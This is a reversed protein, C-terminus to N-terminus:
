GLRSVLEELYEVISSIKSSSKKEPKAYDSLSKDSKKAKEIFELFKDISGQEKYITDLEKVLKDNFLKSFEKKIITYGKDYNDDLFDAIRNLDKKTFKKQYPNFHKSSDTPLLFRGQPDRRRMAALLDADDHTYAYRAFIYKIEDIIEKYKKEAGQLLEEKKDEEIKEPFIKLEKLLKEKKMEPNHEKLKIFTYADKTILDEKREDEIFDFFDKKLKKALIEDIAKDPGAIEELDTGKSDENDDKKDKPQIEKLNSTMEFWKNIGETARNQFSYVLSYKEDHKGSDLKKRFHTIVDNISNDEDAEDVIQDPKKTRIKKDFFLTEGNDTEHIKPKMRAAAGPIFCYYLIWSAGEQAEAQNEGKGKLKNYVYGFFDYNKPIEIQKKDKNKANNEDILIQIGKNWARKSFEISGAGYEKGAFKKSALQILYYPDISALVLQFINNIEAKVLNKDLM